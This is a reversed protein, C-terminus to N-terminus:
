LIAGFTELYACMEQRAHTYMIREAQKLVVRPVNAWLHKEMQDPSDLIARLTEPREMIRQALINVTESKGGPAIQRGIIDRWARLAKDQMFPLWHDPTAGLLSAAQWPELLARDREDMYILIIHLMLLRYERPTGWDRELFNHRSLNLMWAVDVALHAVYGALFAVQAPSHAQQLDPYEALMVRWPPDNVPRDYAFFHTAERPLAAEHRADAAISGLQFASRQSDLLQRYAAPLAPDVLLRQAIELHTFLTPM